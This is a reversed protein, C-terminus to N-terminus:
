LKECLVLFVVGARANAFLVSWPQERSQLVAIDISFLSSIFKLFPTDLECQIELYIDKRYHVWCGARFAGVLNVVPKWGGGL